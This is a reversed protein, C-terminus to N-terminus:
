IKVGVGLFAPSPGTLVFEAVAFSGDGDVFGLEHFPHLLLGQVVM